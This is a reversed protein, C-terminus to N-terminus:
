SKYTKSSFSGNLDTSHPESHAPTLKHLASETPMDMLSPTRATDEALMAILSLVSSADRMSM